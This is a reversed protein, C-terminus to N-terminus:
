RGVCAGFLFLASIITFTIIIIKKGFCTTLGESKEYERSLRGRVRKEMKKERERKGM